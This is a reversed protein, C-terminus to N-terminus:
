HTQMLSLAGLKIKNRLFIKDAKKIFWKRDKDSDFLKNEDIGRAYVHYWYGEHYQRSKFSM